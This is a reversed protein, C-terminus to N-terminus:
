IKDTENIETNKIPTKIKHKNIKKKRQVLAIHEIIPTVGLAHISYAFTDWVFHFTHGLIPVSALWGGFFAVCTGTILKVKVHHKNNTSVIKTVVFTVPQAIISIFLKPSKM